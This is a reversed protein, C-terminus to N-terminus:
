EEALQADAISGLSHQKRDLITEDIGDRLAAVLLARLTTSANFGARREQRVRLWNNPRNPSIGWGTTRRGPFHARVDTSIM